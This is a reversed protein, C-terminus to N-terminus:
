GRVGLIKKIPELRDVINLSAWGRAIAVAWLSSFRVQNTRKSSLSWLRGDPTKQTNLWVQLDNAPIEHINQRERGAGFRAFLGVVEDVYRQGKGAALKRNKFETVVDEYPMPTTISQQNDKQWRQWDAWVSDVTVGKEEISQLTAVVTARKVPPLAAWYEGMTKQDKRYSAIAADADSETEVVRRKYKGNADTGFDVEWRDQGHKKIPRKTPETKMNKDHSTTLKPTIQRSLLDNFVSLL